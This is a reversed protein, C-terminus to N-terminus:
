AALLTTSSISLALQHHHILPHTLFIPISIIGSIIAGHHSNHYIARRRSQIIAEALLAHRVQLVLVDHM